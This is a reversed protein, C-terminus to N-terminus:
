YGEIRRRLIEIGAGGAALENYIAYGHVGGVPTGTTDASLDFSTLATTVDRTYVRLERRAPSTIMVNAYRETFGTPTTWSAAAGASHGHHKWFVICSNAPADITFSPTNSGTYSASDESDLPDATDVGGLTMAWGRQASPTGSFTASLTASSENPNALYAQWGFPDAGGVFDVTVDGLETMSDGDHTQSSSTTTGDRYGSLAWVLFDDVPTYSDGDTSAVGSTYTAAM